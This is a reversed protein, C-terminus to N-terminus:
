RRGNDLANVILAHALEFAFLALEEERAAEAVIHLHVPWRKCVLLLTTGCILWRRVRGVGLFVLARGHAACCVLGADLRVCKFSSVHLCDLTVLTLELM